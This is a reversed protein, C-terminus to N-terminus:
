QLSPLHPEAHMAPASVNRGKWIVQSFEYKYMSYHLLAIDAAIMLPPAVLGFWWSNVRTSLVVLLHTAILCACALAALVHAPWGIPLWFGGAALIFPLLLFVAEMFVHVAVQEPRRHLQPYRVRIATSRQRAISKVSTIGQRPGARLFSYGDGSVATRRAFYAEPVISRAVADFGGAAQLAKRQIIWCSSLVPPRNVLRRPPVLEWWYRMPQILSARGYAQPARRPVISLMQKKRDLMISVLQRLSGPELRVDVGCFLIYAGSSEAALRDYAQNKALWDQDPESSKLFRV